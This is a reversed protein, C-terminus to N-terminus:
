FVTIERSDLTALELGGLIPNVHKDIRLLGESPVSPFDVSLDFRVGRAPALPDPGAPLALTQAYESQQLYGSSSAVFRRRVIGPRDGAVRVEITAGFATELGRDVTASDRVPRVHISLRALPDTNADYTTNEFFAGRSSFNALACDPDGDKDWDGWAPLCFNRYTDPIAHSALVLDPVGTESLLNRRFFGATTLDLDGDLDWDEVSCGETAGDGPRELRESANFFTGDGENEWLVLRARHLVLLDVDGDLDYDFFVTGEDLLTNFLIGTPTRVLPRFRPVGRTSVNQYLTGNAYGDPDGDRDVDAFQAGEPRNVNSPIGLGAAATQQSFHYAGGPGTPGLNELFQNGGSGPTTDDPYITLWLDLDGDDDVDCWAYSEGYMTCSLRDDLIAPDSAVELFNGAGDLNRLLYFCDNRPSCAIDPLGDNDYDGASAGYRDLIPPLFVDLDAARVFTTGGENHWLGANQNVYLDIWGDGDYDLFSVATSNWPPISTLRVLPVDVGGLNEHPLPAATSTQPLLLVLATIPSSM